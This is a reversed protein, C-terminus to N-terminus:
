LLDNNTAGSCPNSGRNGSEFDAKRIKWEDLRQKNRYQDPTLIEHQKTAMGRKKTEKRPKDIWNM